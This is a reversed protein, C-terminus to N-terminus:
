NVKAALASRYIATHKRDARRFSIVRVVEDPRMTTVALVVRGEDDTSLHMQRVEGNEIFSDSTLVAPGGLPLIIRELMQVASELSYGHKRRNAEEKEQDYDIGTRGVVLRFEWDPVGLAESFKSM